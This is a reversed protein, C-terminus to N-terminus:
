VDGHLMLIVPLLQPPFPVCSLTVVLFKRYLTANVLKMILIGSSYTHSDPADSLHGTWFQKCQDISM